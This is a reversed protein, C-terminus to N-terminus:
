RRLKKHKIDKNKFYLIIGIPIIVPLIYFLVLNLSSLELSIEVYFLAIEDDKSDRLEVRYKKMGFEYPNISPTIETMIINEGTDLMALNTGYKVGNIYLSFVESSEQNNQIVIILYASTGQPISKPFSTSIIEFKPVVQVNFSKSYYETINILISMKIRITDNTISEATKLYYSVLKIENKNLTEEQIVSVIFDENVSTFSVNFSQTANPLFNKLSMSVYINEGSVVASQYIFNSYDFSYGIEIVKKVELFTISGQKIKFFIESNGPEAGFKATINFDIQVIEISANFDINQSPFIVIDQGEVSATLSLDENRTYNVVLSVNVIPGQYLIGPLGIISENILGSVVNFRKLTDTLKFYTSNTWVYISYGEGIPFSDDILIELTDSTTPSSISREIQNLFTGNPYKLVYHIDYDTIDYHVAYNVYSENSPNYYQDINKFSYTSTLNLYDQNFTFDPIEGSVNYAGDLDTSNYIEFANLYAKSLQLNSLFSKTTNTLSFDYAIAGGITDYLNNEISNYLTLARNYYTINGTVKFLKLCASMMISNDRLDKSTDAYGAWGPNAVKMYFGNDYLYELSNYLHIANKYYISDNKMGSETWFELLTIIGLANTRLHYRKQGALSTDWDMNADHYFADDVENWMYENDVMDIMTLNAVELARDRIANDLGLKRYTRHILLNALIAYFNSESYKTSSSNYHTFGNYIPDTDWFESSNVLFFIEDISDEPTEGNVSIDDIEAGINEILLFVSMLNDTLYRNDDKIDGTINDISKVFGYKYDNVNGEFWLNTGKLDLYTDFSEFDNIEMKMLSNYYLLNDESFITGDVIDGNSDGYRYYTPIDFDLSSQYRNEFFNRLLDFNKTFPNQLMSVASATQPNNFTNNDFDNENSSFIEESNNNTFENLNIFVLNLFIIFTFFLCLIIKLSQSKNRRSKGVDFITLFRM